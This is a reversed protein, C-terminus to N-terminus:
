WLTTVVRIQWAQDFEGKGGFRPCVGFFVNTHDNASSQILLLITTKLLLPAAWRHCTTRYNTKSQKKGNETWSEIPRFLVLSNEAFIATLFTVATEIDVMLQADASTESTRDVSPESSTQSEPMSQQKFM